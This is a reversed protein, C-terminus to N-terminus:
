TIWLRTAVVRGPRSLQVLLAQGAVAAAVAAGLTLPLGPPPFDLWLQTALEAAVGTAVASLAAARFGLSELLNALVSAVAVAGFAVFVIGHDTGGLVPSLALLLVSAAVTGVTLRWLASMVVRTAASGMWRRDADAHSMADLARPVVSHFRWLYHGAWWSGLTSPVLGLAPYAGHVGWGLSNDSVLLIGLTLGVAAAVTARGFAGPPGERPGSRVVVFGVVGLTTAAVAGVALVADVGAHLAVAGATLLVGYGLASGGRVLVSGSVWAVIL